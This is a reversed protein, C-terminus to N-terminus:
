ERMRCSIKIKETFINTCLIYFKQSTYFTYIYTKKKYIYNHLNYYMSLWWSATPQSCVAFDTSFKKKKKENATNQHRTNLPVLPKATERRNKKEEEKNISGNTTLSSSWTRVNKDPSRRFGGSPRWRRRTNTHFTDYAQTVRDTETTYKQLIFVYFLVNSVIPM